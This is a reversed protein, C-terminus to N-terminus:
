SNQNQRWLARGMSYQRSIAGRSRISDPRYQMRGLLASTELKAITFFVNPGNITNVVAHALNIEQPSIRLAVNGFEPHSKFPTQITKVENESAM